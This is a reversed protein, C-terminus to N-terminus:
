FQLPSGKEWGKSPSSEEPEGSSINTERGGTLMEGHSAGSGRRSRICFATSDKKKKKKKKKKKRKKKKKKKKVPEMSM